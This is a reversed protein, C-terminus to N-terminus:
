IINMREVRLFSKYFNVKNKWVFCYKIYVKESLVKSLIYLFFITYNKEKLKKVNYIIIKLELCFFRSLQFRHERAHKM